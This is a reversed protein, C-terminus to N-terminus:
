ASLHHKKKEKLYSIRWFNHAIVKESYEAIVGDIGRRTFRYLHFKYRLVYIISEVASRANRAQQYSESNWVDEPILKRGKSGNMSVVEINMAHLTELNRRSSFGDDTTVVRPTSDTTECHQQVLPVARAADAPNGNQLEFATIFGNGSRAVLPKYGIVAERGGKKIFAVCEDSLSLVKEPSPLHIGRFVRDGTYTYVRIVNEIDEILQEIAVRALHQQSPPLVHLEEWSCLNENVYHVMWLLIKNVRKLFRRYLKKLKKKSKPKGSTHAIEFEMSKLENLWRPIYRTSFGPLGFKPIVDAGLHWARKLLKLLIRSDTPWETNGAVSFSDLAVLEMSDLGSEMIMKIQVKFIYTRTDNTVFNINELITNTSPLRMGRTKFYTHVLISDKLRDVAQRSTVSNLHARCMMLFFVSLPDLLRPRGDLLTLNDPNYNEDEGMFKECEPLIRNRNDYWRKEALRAAKKKKAARDVDEEIKDLISPDYEVLSVMELFINRLETDPVSDVIVDKINNLKLKLGIQRM